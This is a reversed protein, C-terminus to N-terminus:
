VLAALCKRARRVMRLGGGAVFECATSAHAADAPESESGHARGAWEPIPIGRALLASICLAPVVYQLSEVAGALAFGALAAGVGGPDVVITQPRLAMAHLAFHSLGALTVCLWWPLRALADMWSGPDAPRDKSAM